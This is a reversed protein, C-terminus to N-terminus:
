CIDKGCLIIFIWLIVSLSFKLNLRERTTSISLYSCLCARKGFTTSSRKQFVAYCCTKKPM